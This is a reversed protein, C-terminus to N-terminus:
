AEEGESPDCAEGFCDVPSFEKPWAIGARLEFKRESHEFQCIVANCNTSYGYYPSFGADCTPSYVLQGSPTARAGFSFSIQTTDDLPREKPGCEYEWEVCVQGFGFPGTVYRTCTAGTKITYTDSTLLGYVSVSVQCRGMYSANGGYDCWEEQETNPDYQMEPFYDECTLNTWPGVSPILYFLSNLHCQTVAAEGAANSAGAQSDLSSLKSDREATKTDLEEQKEDLEEQKDDREEEKAKLRERLAACAEAAEPPGCTESIQDELAEVEKELAELEDKLEEVEEELACVVPLLEKYEGELQTYLSHASVWAAFAASSQCTESCAEETCGVQSIVGLFRDESGKANDCQELCNGKCDCWMEEMQAEIEDLFEVRWLKLEESFTIKPCTEKIKDRMEEIEKKTWIHDPGVEPIPDIPECDTGSPPDELKENVRKILDNWDSRKFLQGAQYPM